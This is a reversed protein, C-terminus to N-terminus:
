DLGFLHVLLGFRHLVITRLDRGRTGAEAIQELLLDVRGIAASCEDCILRGSTETSPAEPRQNFFVPLAMVFDSSISIMVALCFCRGALSTSSANFCISSIMLSESACPSRM